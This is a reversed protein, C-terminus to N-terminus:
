KLVQFMLKKYDGDDLPKGDLLKFLMSARNTKGYSQIIVVAQLKRTPLTRIQETLFKEMGEIIKRVEKYGDCIQSIFGRIENAIEYDFSAIQDFFEQYPPKGSNIWVDMVKELSSFDSKMRHRYLYWDSKLKHLTQGNNSYAVVGEKGRLEKINSLLEEITALKYTPPRKFGECKAFDDLAIQQALSYDSHRVSGVLTWDPKDGYNLVIKQNPSTWEFLVSEPWTEEFRMLKDLKPLHQKFIELEHGNDLHWADSTGRTRLIYNGKWKSVILLSGDMKEVCVVDDLSEPLPFVEPLEGWNTFKPFGASALEGDASWLSSRFIKNEQTWKCGIHIPQVLYMTEGHVIHEHVMFSERDIKSLDIKM